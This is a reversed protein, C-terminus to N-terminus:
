RRIIKESERVKERERKQSIIVFLSKSVAAGQKEIQTESLIRREEKRM